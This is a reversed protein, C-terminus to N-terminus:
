INLELSNKLNLLHNIDLKRKIDRSFRYLYKIGSVVFLSCVYTSFFNYHTLVDYYLIDFIM